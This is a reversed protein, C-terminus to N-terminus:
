KAKKEVILSTGVGAPAVYKEVGGVLAGALKVAADDLRLCGNVILQELLRPNDKYLANFDCARGPLRRERLSAEYTGDAAEEWVVGGERELFHRILEGLRDQQKKYSVAQERAECYPRLLNAVMSYDLAVEEEVEADIAKVWNTDEETTM